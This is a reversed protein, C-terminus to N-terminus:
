PAPNGFFRPCYRVSAASKQSEEGPRMEREGEGARRRRGPENSHDRGMQTLDPKPASLSISPPSLSSFFVEKEGELQM